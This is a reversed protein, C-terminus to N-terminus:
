LPYAFLGIPWPLTKASADPQLYFQYKLIETHPNVMSAPMHVVADAGPLITQKQGNALTVEISSIDQLGNCQINLAYGDPANSDIQVETEYIYGISGIAIDRAGIILSSPENVVQLDVKSPVDAHVQISTHAEGCLANRCLFVM